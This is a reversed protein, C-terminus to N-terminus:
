DLLSDLARELRTDHSGYGEIRHTIVGDRGVVFLAPIGSLKLSTWGPQGAWGLTYGVEAGKFFRIAASREKDVSLGIVRVGKDAYAEQVEQLHPMGAVCPGCWTAWMDVVLVHDPDVLGIPDGGRLASATELPFRQGVLPKPSEKKAPAESAAKPALSALWGDFGDPHWGGRAIWLPELLARSEVRAAEDDVGGKRGYAAVLYAYARDEQGLAALVIGAHALVDGGGSTSAAREISPLAEADRGLRHLIWGHTDWWSAVDSQYGRQWSAFSGTGDWTPTDLPPLVRAIATLAEELDEGRLAASWAFANVRDGHDPTARAIDRRAAYVDDERKLAELHEIRREQWSVRGEGDDPIRKAIGDLGELALEHTPRQGAEYIERRLQFESLEVPPRGPACPRGEAVRAKLSSVDRGARELVRAGLDVLRLDDSAVWAEAVELLAKRSPKVGKADWLVAALTPARDPWQEASRRIADPTVSGPDAALRKWLAFSAAADSEEGAAAIEGDLAGADISDCRAAARLLVRAAQYRAEASQDARGELLSAVRECDTRPDQVLAEGLGVRLGFDDPDAAHLAEYAEITQLRANWDISAQANARARHVAAGGEGSRLVEGTKVVAEHYCGRDLYWWAQTLADSAHASGFLFLSALM